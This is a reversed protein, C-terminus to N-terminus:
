EGLSAGGVPAEAPDGLVIVAVAGEGEGEGEFDVKIFRKCGVLDLDYNVLDDAQVSKVTAEGVVLLADPADTFSGEATDSHTVKITLDGSGKAKIAVVASLFGARDIAKDDLPMAKINEILERKM